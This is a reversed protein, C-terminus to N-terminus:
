NLNVLCLSLPLNFVLIKWKTYYYYDGKIFLFSGPELTQASLHSGQKWIKFVWRESMMSPILLLVPRGRLQWALFASLYSLTVVALPFCVGAGLDQGRM